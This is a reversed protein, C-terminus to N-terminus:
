LLGKHELALQTRFIGEYFWVKVLDRNEIHRTRGDVEDHCRYCGYAGFRDSEKRGMGGGNKHCFVTTETDNTCVGPIRIQCAENRASETIKSM